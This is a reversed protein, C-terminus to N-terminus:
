RSAGTTGLRDATETRVHREAFAAALDPDWWIAYMEFDETGRNLV